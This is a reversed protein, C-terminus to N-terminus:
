EFYIYYQVLVLILCSMRRNNSINKVNIARPLRSSFDQNLIYFYFLNCFRNKYMKSENKKKYKCLM